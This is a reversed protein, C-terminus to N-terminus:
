SERCMAVLKSLTNANRMTVPVGALKELAGANLPAKTYDMPIYM